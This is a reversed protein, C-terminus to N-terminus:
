ETPIVELLPMKEVPSFFHMGLICDPRRAGAAIDHVSLTSTNTAIVTDDRVVREIDGVVERKVSLEEFVAEIVIDTGGFGDYAATGSLYGRKREFEYRTMRRKAVRAALLDTATKLGRGVRALDADKVRVEVGAQLVATAAIASGMFGAGVVGVRRVPHARGYGPPVGDDKKLATTAFFTEVLRRSVDTMALEGFAQVEAEFGRAIGHQVGTRVVEIARLPAPYHGGTKREVQEKAKRLVLARGAPNRDMLWSGARRKPAKGGRALREAAAIAVDILIPEPVLEDILGIALAKRGREHRATLIMDLAAHVGVLRPLRTSGGAAPILGLQVEPFGLVTKPHDSAVRYRCALALELGGGLCAGHIAAVIPKAADAVRQMLLQGDRSLRSAEEVSGLTVFEEIDAGAIFIDPKGSRVVIAKVVEDADLRQLMEEFEWGAAKSIKNVPENPTDFTIIAVGGRHEVTFASM